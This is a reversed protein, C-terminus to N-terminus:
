PERGVPCDQLSGGGPRQDSRAHEEGAGLRRTLDVRAREHQACRRAEAVDRSAFASKSRVLLDRARTVAERDAATM